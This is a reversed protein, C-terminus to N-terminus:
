KEEFTLDKIKSVNNVVTETTAKLTFIKPETKGGTIYDARFDDSTITVTVNKLNADVTFTYESNGDVTTEYFIDAYTGNGLVTALDKSNIKAYLKTGSPVKDWTKIPNNNDENLEIRAKGKITAKGNAVVDNKQEEECATLGLLAIIAFSAM